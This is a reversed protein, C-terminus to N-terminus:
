IWKPIYLNRTYGEMYKNFEKIIENVIILLVNNSHKPVKLSKLFGDLIKKFERDDFYRVIASNLNEVKKILSKDRVNISFIYSQYIGIVKDSMIDFESIEENIIRYYEPCHKIIIKNSLYGEDKM